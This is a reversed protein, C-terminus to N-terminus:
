HVPIEKKKLTIRNIPRKHYPYRAIYPTTGHFCVTVTFSLLM